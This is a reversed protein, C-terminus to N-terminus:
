PTMGPFLLAAIRDAGFVFTGGIVMGVVDTVSGHGSFFKFGFVMFAVVALVRLAFTVMSKLNLAAQSMPDGGFQASLTVAGVVFLIAIVTGWRTYTM